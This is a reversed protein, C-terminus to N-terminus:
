KDVYTSTHLMCASNVLADDRKGWALRSEPTRDVAIGISHCEALSRLNFPFLCSVDFSRPSAIAVNGNKNNMMTKM